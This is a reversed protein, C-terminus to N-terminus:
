DDDDEFRRTEFFCDFRMINREPDYRRKIEYFMQYSLLRIYINQSIMEWYNDNFTVEFSYLGKWRLITKKNGLQNTRFIWSKEFATAFVEASEVHNIEALSIVRMQSLINRAKEKTLM